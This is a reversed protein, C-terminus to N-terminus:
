KMKVAPRHGHFDSDTLSRTVVCWGLPIARFISPASTIIRFEVMSTLHSIYLYTYPLTTYKTLVRTHVLHSFISTCIKTTTAIIWIHDKFVSTSFPEIPFTNYWLNTSGLNTAFAQVHKQLTKIETSIFFIVFVGVFPFCTSMGTGLNEMYIFMPLSLFIQSM